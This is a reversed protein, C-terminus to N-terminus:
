SSCTVACRNSVIADATATVNCSGVKVFTVLGTPDVTAVSPDDSIWQFRDSPLNPIPKNEADSAKAILKLSSNVSNLSISPPEIAVSAIAPREIATGDRNIGFYAFGAAIAVGLWAKAHETFAPEHDTDYLLFGYILTFVGCGLWFLIYVSPMYGAITQLSGTLGKRFLERGPFEAIASAGLAGVVTASILAGISNLIYKMNDTFLSCIPVQQPDKNKDALHKLVEEKCQVVSIADVISWIYLGLLIMALISGFLLKPM